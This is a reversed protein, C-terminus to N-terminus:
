SGLLVPGEPRRKRYIYIYIYIYIHTHTHAHAPPQAARNDVRANTPPNGCIWLHSPTDRPRAPADRQKKPAPPFTHVHIINIYQHSATGHPAPSPVLSKRVAGPRPLAVTTRLMRSSMVLPELSASEPTKSRWPVPLTEPGRRGHSRGLKEGRFIRSCGCSRSTNLAFQQM